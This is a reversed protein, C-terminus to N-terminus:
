RRPRAQGDTGNKPAADKRWSGNERSDATIERGSKQGRYNRDRDRRRDGRDWDRRSNDTTRPSEATRQTDRPPESDRRPADAETQRDTDWSRNRGREARRGRGSGPAPQAALEQLRKSRLALAQLYMPDSERAVKEAVSMTPCDRAFNGKEKCKFCGWDKGVGTGVTDM